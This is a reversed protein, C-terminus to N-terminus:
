KNLELNFQTYFAKPFEKIAASVMERLEEVKAVVKDYESIARQEDYEEAPFLAFGTFTELPEAECEDEFGICVPKGNYIYVRKM